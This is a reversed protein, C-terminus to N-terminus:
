RVGRKYNDEANSLYGMLILSRSTDGAWRKSQRARVRMWRSLTLATHAEMTATVNGIVLNVLDGNVSVRWPYKRGDSTSRKEPSLPSPSAEVSSALSPRDQRDVGSNRATVNGAIRLAMAIRTATGYALRATAKGISLCVIDNESAVAFQQQSLIM